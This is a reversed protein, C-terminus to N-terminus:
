NAPAFRTALADVLESIPREIDLTVPDEDAGPEVLTAFQSELLSAPMYEHQRARMRGHILDFDGRLFVLRSRDEYGRRLYERYAPKLASCSVVVPRTGPNALAEAIAARLRDFWPWRDEDTLPTGAGMKAKNAPPHFDDGELFVGGLRDALEQGVTSKGCGSVGMVLILDATM